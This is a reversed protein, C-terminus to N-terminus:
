HSSNAVDHPSTGQLTHSLQCVSEQGGKPNISGRRLVIIERHQERSSQQSFLTSHRFIVVTPDVRFSQPYYCTCQSDQSCHVEARGVEYEQLHPELNLSQFIDLLYLAPSVPTLHIGVPLPGSYKPCFATPIHTSRSIGMLLQRSSQSPNLKRPSNGQTEELDKLLTQYVHVVNLTPRKSSSPIWKGGQAQPSAGDEWLFHLVLCHRIPSSPWAVASGPATSFCKESASQEHSIGSLFESKRINVLSFSFGTQLGDATTEGPHAIAVRAALAQTLLLLSGSPAPGTASHNLELAGSCAAWLKAPEFGPRPCPAAWWVESLCRGM